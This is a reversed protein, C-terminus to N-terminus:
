GTIERKLQRAFHEYLPLDAATAGGWVPLKGTQLRLFDAIIDAQQEYNFHQLSWGQERARYLSAAGGYNYGEPSYQARLARPIYLSGEQWFQWVHVMEHVLLAADMPGWSNIHCFSVYCIRWHRSGVFAREDLRIRRYPARNGFIPRLLAEEEPTLPRSRYKIWDALTEYWEPLGALDLMLCFLELWWVGFHLLLRRTPLGPQRSRHGGSFGGKIHRVIRRLREPWQRVLHGFREVTAKTKGSLRTGM